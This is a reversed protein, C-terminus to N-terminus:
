IEKLDNDAKEIKDCYDSIICFLEYLPNVKEM